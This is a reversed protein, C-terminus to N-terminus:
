TQRTSSCSSSSSGVGTYDAARRVKLEEGDGRGVRKWQCVYVAILHKRIDELCRQILGVDRTVAIGNQAVGKISDPHEAEQQLSVCSDIWVM